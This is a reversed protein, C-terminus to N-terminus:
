ASPASLTVLLDLPQGIVCFHQRNHAAFEDVERVMRLHSGYVRSAASM